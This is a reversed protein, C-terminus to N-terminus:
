LSNCSNLQIALTHRQCGPFSSSVRCFRYIGDVKEGYRLMLVFKLVDFQFDEWSIEASGCMVLPAQAAVIVEQFVWIRSWWSSRFLKMLGPLHDGWTNDDIEIVKSKALLEIVKDTEEDGEGLWVIVRAAKAYIHRMHGVQSSKEQNDAQNICIADVWLRRPQFEPRLHRLASGLNTTIRIPAGDLWLTNREESTGWVYPLAEFATDDNQAEALALTQLTCCVDATHSNAPLLSLVRIDNVPDDLRTYTYASQETIQNM